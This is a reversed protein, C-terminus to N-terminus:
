SLQPILNAIVAFESEFLFSLAGWLELVGNKTLTKLRRM